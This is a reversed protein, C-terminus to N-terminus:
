AHPFCGRDGRGRWIRRNDLEWVRRVSFAEGDPFYERNTLADGFASTRASTLDAHALIEAELSLPLIPAGFELRGHHSLILHHLAELREVRAGAHPSRGIVGDLLRTGLVVHGVIRGRLTATFPGEWHYSELKGVDHLLSGALLLEPDALPALSAITLALRAVECTHQLLGGIRAHHATLSAPCQEFRRRFAPDDFLLTLIDRLPGSSLTARWHDLLAWWPAPDGISPHFAEWSVQEPSLLTLEEVQLQLRERWSTMVGTVEVVRGRTVDEIQHMEGAWIPASKLRGQASSFTLIAHPNDGHRLELDQVLFTARVRTGPPAHLSVSAPPLVTAPTPWPPLGARSSHGPIEDPTVPLLGLPSAAAARRTCAEPAM